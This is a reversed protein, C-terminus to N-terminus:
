GLGRLSVMGPSGLNWTSVLAGWWLLGQQRHGTAPAERCFVVTRSHRSSELMERDGVHPCVLIGRSVYADPEAGAGYFGRAQGGKRGRPSSM